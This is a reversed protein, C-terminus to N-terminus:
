PKYEFYKKLKLMHKELLHWTALAILITASYTTLPYLIFPKWGRLESHWFVDLLILVATMHFIYMSYSYKGLFTLIPNGFIKRLINQPPYTIFVGILGVSFLAATTYGGIMLPISSHEPHPSGPLSLIHLAIFVTLSILFVPMAFKRVKEHAGDYTLFIALLGGFFMEEFRAFSAYYFFSSAEALDSWLFTGLIRAITSILIYSISVKVLQSNNLKYVIFPWLFYFQEEIALSWTIGLYQTIYFGDFLLAWNQQYLLMIPLATNLQNTFEPEVKPAFLLVFAIAVFYLPLIRLSRRVYFNRFYHQDTKSRLLISTILFGSLVFFIDVGVWGVTTFTTFTELVPHETFYAARKFLHLAMVLVVAIGRLGDLEKIRNEM